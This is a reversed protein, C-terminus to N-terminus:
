GRRSCVFCTGACLVLNPAILTGGCIHWKRGYNDADMVSVFYPYRGLPAASGGVIRSEIGKLDPLGSVVGFVFILLTYSQLLIFKIYCGGNVSGDHVTQAQHLM